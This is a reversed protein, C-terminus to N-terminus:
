REREESEPLERPQRETGQDVETRPRHLLEDLWVPVPPVGYAGAPLGVACRAAKGQQIVYCTGNPLTRLEDPHVRYTEQERATGTDMRPTMRGEYAGGAEFRTYSGAIKALDEAGTIQRFTVTTANTLVAGQAREDGLGARDQAVIVFKVGASRAREMLNVVYRGIVPDTELASIEELIITLPQYSGDSRRPRRGHTVYAILDQLVLRLLMRATEPERSTPLDLACVQADEFAWGGAERPGIWDALVLADAAYRQVTGDWSRPDVHTLIASALSSSSALDAMRERQTLMWVVDSLAKAPRGEAEMMQLALGLLLTVGQQHHRESFLEVDTLRNRLEAASGRMIDYPAYEPTLVKSPKGLAEAQAILRRSPESGAAAEKCNLYIVQDGPRRDQIWEAVRHTAESKGTGSAGLVVLHRVEVEWPLTLPKGVKGWALDGGQYIGLFPGADSGVGLGARHRGNVHRRKQQRQLSVARRRDESDERRRQAAEGGILSRERYEQNGRWYLAGLMAGAAVTWATMSVIGGASPQYEWTWAAGLVPVLGVLGGLLPLWAAWFLPTLVIAGVLLPLAMAAVAWGVVRDQRRCLWLHAAVGGLYIPGLALLALLHVALFVWGGERRRTWAQYLMGSAHPRRGRM